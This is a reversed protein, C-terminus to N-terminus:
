LCIPIKDSIAAFYNMEYYNIKDRFFSVSSIFYKETLDVVGFGFVV